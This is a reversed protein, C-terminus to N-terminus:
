SESKQFGSIISQYSDIIDGSGLTVKNRYISRWVRKRVAGAQITFIVSM